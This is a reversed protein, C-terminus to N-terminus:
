KTRSAKRMKVVLDQAYQEVEAEGIKNGGKLELCRRWYKCLFEIQDREEFVNLDFAITRFYDQLEAKLHTRTTVFIKMDGIKVCFRM